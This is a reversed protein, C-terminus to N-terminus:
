RGWWDDHVVFLFLFDFFDKIGAIMSVAKLVSYLPCSEM